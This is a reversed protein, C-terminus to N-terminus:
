ETYIACELGIDTIFWALCLGLVHLYIFPDLVPVIFAPYGPEVSRTCTKGVTDLIWVCCHHTRSLADGPRIGPGVSM